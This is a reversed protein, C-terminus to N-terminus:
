GMLAKERQYDDEQSAMEKFANLAVVYRKRMEGVALADHENGSAAMKDIQEKNLESLLRLADVTAADEFSKIVNNMFTNRLSANAFCSKKAPEAKGLSDNGSAGDDDKEPSIGFVCCSTYRRAYTIASGREQHKAPKGLPYLGYDIYQGSSHLLVTHLNDGDPRQIISLGFEKFLSRCAAMVADLSAYDYTYTGANGKENKLVPEVAAQAASLAPAIKDLTMSTYHTFLTETM